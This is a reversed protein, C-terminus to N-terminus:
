RCASSPMEKGDVLCVNDPTTDDGGGCATLIVALSLLWLVAIIRLAWRARIRPTM